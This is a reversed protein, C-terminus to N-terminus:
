ETMQQHDCQNWTKVTTALAATFALYTDKIHQRQNRQNCVWFYCLQFM